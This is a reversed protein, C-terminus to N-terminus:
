GRKWQWIEGTVRFILSLMRLTEARKMENVFLANLKWLIAIRHIFLFSESETFITTKERACRKRFNSLQQPMQTM